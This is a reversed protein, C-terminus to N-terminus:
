IKEALERMAVLAAAQKGATVAYNEPKTVCVRIKKALDALEAEASDALLLAVNRMVPLTEGHPLADVSTISIRGRM